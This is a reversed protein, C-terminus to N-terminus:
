RTSGTCEPPRKRSWRPAKGGSQDLAGPAEDAGTAAAHPHRGSKPTASPTSHRCRAPRKSNSGRTCWCPRTAGTMWCPSQTGLRGATQSHRIPAGGTSTSTEGKWAYVAIGKPDAVTGRRGVVVAAAAHDQTSFINCSVWRVDAGLDDGDEILVATQVTMHLWQDEGRRAPAQGQVRHPPGHSRADRVGRTPDREPRVRGAFLDRGKVPM